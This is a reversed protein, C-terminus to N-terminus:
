LCQRVLAQVSAFNLSYSMTTPLARGDIFCAEAAGSDFAELKYMSHKKMHLKTDKPGRKTGLVNLTVVTTPVTSSLTLIIVWILQININSDNTLTITLLIMDRRGLM